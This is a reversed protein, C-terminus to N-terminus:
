RGACLVRLMQSQLVQTSFELTAIVDLTVNITVHTTQSKESKESKLLWGVLTEVQIQLSNEM